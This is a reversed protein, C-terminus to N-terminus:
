IASSRTLYRGTGAAPVRNCAHEFEEFVKEVLKITTEARTVLGDQDGDQEDDGNKADDKGHAIVREDLLVRIEAVATVEHFFRISCPLEGTMPVDYALVAMLEPDELLVTKQDLEHKGRVAPRGFRVALLRWPLGTNGTM